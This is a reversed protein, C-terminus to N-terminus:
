DQYQVLLFEQIFTTFKIENTTLKFYEVISKKVIEDVDSIIIIDDDKPNSKEIGKLIWRRQHNENDWPNDTNPCEDDIIHIIKHLYKTYRDKNKEFYLEKPNGAHTHTAEVLVFKDTVDDMYKLRFDLLDLENYFPFCDIVKRM